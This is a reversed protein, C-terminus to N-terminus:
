HTTIFVPKVTKTAQDIKIHMELPKICLLTIVVLTDRANLFATTLAATM